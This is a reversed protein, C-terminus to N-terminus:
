SLTLVKTGHPPTSQQNCHSLHSLNLLCTSSHLGRGLIRAVSAPSLGPPASPAAAAAATAAAAAAAANETPSGPAAAATAAAALGPM